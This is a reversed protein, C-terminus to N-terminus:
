KSVSNIEPDFSHIKWKVDIYYVTETWPDTFLKNHTGFLKTHLFSYQDDSPVVVDPEAILFSVLINYAVLYIARRYITSQNSNLQILM